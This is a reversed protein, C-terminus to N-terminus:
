EYPLTTLHLVTFVVRSMQNPKTRKNNSKVKCQLWEPGPCDLNKKSVSKKMLLVYKWGDDDSHKSGHFIVKQNNDNSSNIKKSSSCYIPLYMPDAEIIGVLYLGFVHFVADYVQLFNRWICLVSHCSISLYISWM